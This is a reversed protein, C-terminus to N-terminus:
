FYLRCYLSHIHPQTHVTSTHIQTHTHMERERACAHRCKISMFVCVRACVCVLRCDCMLRLCVHLLSSGIHERLVCEHMCVYLGARRAPRLNEGTAM